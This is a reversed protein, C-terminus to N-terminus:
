RNANALEGVIIVFLSPPYGKRIELLLLFAELTNRFLMIIPKPKLHTYEKKLKKLFKFHTILNQLM